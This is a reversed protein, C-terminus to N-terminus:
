LIPQLDHIIITIGLYYSIMIFLINSKEERKQRAQHMLYCRYQNDGLRSFVDKLWDNHEPFLCMYYFPHITKPGVHLCWICDAHKQFMVLAKRGPPVTTIPPIFQYYQFIHTVNQMM